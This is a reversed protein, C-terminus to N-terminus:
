IHIKERMEELVGSAQLISETGANWAKGSIAVYSLFRKACTGRSREPRCLSNVSGVIFGAFHRQPM